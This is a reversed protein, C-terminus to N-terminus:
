HAVNGTSRASGLCSLKARGSLAKALMALSHGLTITAQGVLSVSHGLRASSTMSSSVWCRTTVDSVGIGSKGKKLEGGM